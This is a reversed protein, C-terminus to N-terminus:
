CSNKIFEEIGNESHLDFSESKYWDIALFDYTKVFESLGNKFKNELEENEIRGTTWIYKLKGNDEDLLLAFKKSGFGFPVKEGTLHGVNQHVVEKIREMGNKEFIEAVSKFDIKKDITKIPIEGIETIDTFGYGDFHEKGFENIRNSEKKIFELNDKPLLEIMLHDDEWLHLVDAFEYPKKEKPKIGFLKRLNM